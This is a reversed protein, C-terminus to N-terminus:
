LGWTKGFEARSVLNGSFSQADQLALYVASPGVVEPAEREAWDWQTWPIAASGESRLSGPSLINVAINYERVEEALTMSFMHLGAKSASYLVGGGRTHDSGMRSGINVISGRGQDRMPPLVARCTLYPGRMNVAVSQDWQAPSIELISEGLVMIGANNVLVDIRGYRELVQRVMESVQKEDAVDCAVALAEGGAAQIDGATEEVKGALGTPSRPRACVAVKAGERAYEKAIARGLGRSAGTVIAVLGDM